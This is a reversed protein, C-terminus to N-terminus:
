CLLVYKVMLKKVNYPFSLKGQLRLSIGVASLMFCAHDYRHAGSHGNGATQFHRCVMLAVEREDKGLGGVVLSHM